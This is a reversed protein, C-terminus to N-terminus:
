QNVKFRQTCYSYIKEYGYSTRWIANGCMKCLKHQIPIPIFYQRISERYAPTMYEYSQNPRIQTPLKYQYSSESEKCYALDQRQMDIGNKRDVKSLFSLLEWSQFSEKTPTVSNYEFWYSTPTLFEFVNIILILTFSLTIAGFIAGIISGISLHYQLTKVM